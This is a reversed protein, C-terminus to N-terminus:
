LYSTSEVCYLTFLNKQDQGRQDHAPSSDGELKGSQGPVPPAGNEAGKAKMEKALRPGSKPMLKAAREQFEAKAKEGPSLEAASKKILNSQGRQDLNSQGRQDVIPKTVRMKFKMLTMSAGTTALELSILGSTERYPRYFRLSIM